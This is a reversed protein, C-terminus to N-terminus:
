VCDQLSDIIKSIRSNVDDTSSADDIDDNDFGGLSALLEDISRDTADKEAQENLLMDGEYDDDDDMDEDMDIM